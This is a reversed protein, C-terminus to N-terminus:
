FIKDLNANQDTKASLTMSTNSSKDNILSMIASIHPDPHGDDVLAQHLKAAYEFNDGNHGVHTSVIDAIKEHGIFGGFNDNDINAVFTVGKKTIIEEGKGDKTYRYIPIWNANFGDRERKTM